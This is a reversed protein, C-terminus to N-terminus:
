GFVVLALAKGADVGFDYYQAAKYETISQNIEHYIQVGNVILDKGLHWAFSIPSKFVAAMQILKSVDKEISKCDGLAKGIGEIAQGLEIIGDKVGDYTKKEFDEVAAYIDRGIVEADQLCATIDGLGEQQLAGVVIGESIQVLETVNLAQTVTIGLLVLLTLIRM